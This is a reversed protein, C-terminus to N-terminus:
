ELAAQAHLLYSRLALNGPSRTLGDVLANAAASANGSELLIAALAQDRPYSPHRDSFRRVAAVRISPDLRRGFQIRFADVGDLELPTMGVEPRLGCASRWRLQFLAFPVLPHVRLRGRRDLLGSARAKDLFVGGMAVADRESEAPGIELRVVASLLDYSVRTGVALVSEISDANALTRCGERMDRQAEALRAKTGSQARADDLEARALARWRDVLELEGDALERHSVARGTNQLFMKAAGADLLPCPVSPATSHDFLCLLIPLFIPPVLLGPAVLWAPM